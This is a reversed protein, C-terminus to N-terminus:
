EDACLAHLQFFSNEVANSVRAAVLNEGAQLYPTVEVPDVVNTVLCAAEDNVCGEEQWGGGWHGVAAGNVYLWLGDDSQVDIFVADPVAALTFSGRYARDQGAPTHGSDPLAVTSWGTRDFGPTYWPAGSGDTPDAAEGFPQSGWWEVADLELQECPVPDVTAEGSGTDEGPPDDTATDVAPPDGTDEGPADADGVSKELGYETCGAGPAGLAGLFLASTLLHSTRM